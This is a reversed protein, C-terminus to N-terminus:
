RRRARDKSGNLAATDQRKLRKAGGRGGDSGARDQTARARAPARDASLHATQVCFTEDAVSSDSHVPRKLLAPDGADRSFPAPAAVSPCEAPWQAASALASALPYRAPSAVRSPVVPHCEAGSSAV